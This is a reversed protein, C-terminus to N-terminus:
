KQILGFTIAGAAILPVSGIMLVSVDKSIFSAVVFQM